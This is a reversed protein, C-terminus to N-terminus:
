KSIYPDRIEVVSSYVLLPQCNRFAVNRFIVATWAMLLRAFWELSGLDHHEMIRM